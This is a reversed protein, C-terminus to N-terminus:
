KKVRGAAFELRFNVYGDETDDLLVTADYKKGTKESHLGKLSARGDKLLATVIAATLPKKKATWFKSAKWIKFGCDRKDCFFGKQGERIPSGCRPCKGLEPAASKRADPFLATFDPKPTKNSLVISRTFDAIGGMFEAGDLENRQVQLLKHEWDATLKASTLADPLVAILKKGKDSPILNKKQREVYGRKILAELIGARTASTGLGKREADDPMDEAGATEMAKLITDETYHPKPKTFGERVTVAASDFTQGKSLPPLGSSDEDENDDASEDTKWGPELVTRGKSTFSNGGCDFTVTVAEYVHKPSVAEVLRRRILGFIGREGTPLADISANLSELTPIIAHHDSVAGVIRDIDPTFGTEGLIKMVTDRMDATIYKSDTRPYSVVKKEYLSQVYDLTEQATYGLVRNADRQLTTLDYLKPPAVTKKVREVETVTATQGDCAAAIVDADARSKLKEGNAALGSLDLTPTYFPEKVFGAIEAERRVLMALTPSQVRGVNATVGYLISFLRTCSIGCLWDAKERCSAAAFLSDYDAGNKLNTFGDKVAADEMSSIWLRQVPKKCKAHEYVLRFINEGERGADCANVVYEVDPRNLLETLIKLQAAKDKAPVHKWTQPVIPLDAYRWKAYQEGYFQPPALELLHGFCYAVIYGNGHFFSDGREKAGLVAAYAQAQRPKECIVLKPM